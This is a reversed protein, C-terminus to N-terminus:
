KRFEKVKKYLISDLKGADFRGYWGCQICKFGVCESIANKLIIFDKPEVEEYKTPCNPCDLNFKLTPTKIKM